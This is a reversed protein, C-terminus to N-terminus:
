ESAREFADWTPIMWVNLSPTYRAGKSYLKISPDDAELIFGVLGVDISDPHCTVYTELGERAEEWLLVDVKFM